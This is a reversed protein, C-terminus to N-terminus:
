DGVVLDKGESSKHFGLEDINLLNNLRYYTREIEAESNGVNDAIVRIRVGKLLSHTIHTSRLSHLTYKKDLDCGKLISKFCARIHEDTYVTFDPSFPNAMLLTDKSPPEILQLVEQNRWKYKKIEGSEVLANHQKIQENRLKVGKNLHSKIKRLTNGNMIVTRSGTKTTPRINIIGKVNGDPRKQVDCDGLLIQRTEHIRNGTHYQFLVWHIFWRKKWTEEETRCGVDYKYLVDKFRIFEDPLFAPNAEERYNKKDKIKPIDFLKDSSIYGQKAMWCLLERLTTLDSNITAASLGKTESKWKGKQTIDLYYGGYGEFTEQTVDSVSKVDFKRAFPIIRQYIRQEYTSLSSVKIQGRESQKKKAELFEACAKEFGYRRAVTRAPENVAKTYVDLAKDHAVKIDTTGLSINSYRKNGRSIRLYLYERDAYCMIYAKGNLTPEKYQLKPM